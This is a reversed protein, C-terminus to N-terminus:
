LGYLMKGLFIEEAPQIIFKPTPEFHLIPGSYLSAFHDTSFPNIYLHGALLPIRGVSTDQWCLHGSVSTDV